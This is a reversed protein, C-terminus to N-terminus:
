FRFVTGYCCWFGPIVDKDEQSLGGSIGYPSLGQGKRFAVQKESAIRSKLTMIM